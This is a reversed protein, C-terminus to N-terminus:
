AGRALRPAIRERWFRDVAIATDALDGDNHVVTTAAARKEALPRQHAERRELEREDWGRERARRQRTERSAEIFLTEDCLGAGGAEVLLPADLVVVGRRGDERREALRDIEAGIVALVRPHLISELRRLRVPDSFVLGALARRDITGQAVVEPGFAATVSARVEPRELERHALRDADLVFAGHDSLLAAVRSKGSAIGGHLGVVLPRVKESLRPDM